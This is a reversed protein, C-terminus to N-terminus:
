PSTGSGSRDAVAQLDSTSHRRQSRRREAKRGEERRGEEKKKVVGNPFRAADGEHGGASHLRRHRRHRQNSRCKRQDAFRESGPRCVAAHQLHEDLDTRHAADTGVFWHEAPIEQATRLAVPQASARRDFRARRYRVARHAIRWVRGSRVVSRSNSRQAGSRAAPGTSASVSPRTATSTFRTGTPDPVTITPTLYGGSQVYSVLSVQWGGLALDVLAPASSMWTKGRGFPLEYM